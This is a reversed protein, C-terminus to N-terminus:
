KTSQLSKVSTPPKENSASDDDDDSESGQVGHYDIEFIDNGSERTVNEDSSIDNESDENSNIDEDSPDENKLIAAAKM